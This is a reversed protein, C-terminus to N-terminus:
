EREGKSGPLRSGVKEAAYKVIDWAEQVYKKSEDKM